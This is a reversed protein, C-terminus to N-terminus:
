DYKRKKEPMNTICVKAHRKQVQDVACSAVTEVIKTSVTLCSHPSQELESWLTEKYSRLSVAQKLAASVGLKCQDPLESIALELEMDTSRQQAPGNKYESANILRGHNKEVKVSYLIVEIILNIDMICSRIVEEFHVFYKMITSTTDTNSLVEDCQRQIYYLDRAISGIIVCVCTKLWEGSCLVNLIALQRCEAFAKKTAALLIFASEQQHKWYNVDVFCHEKLTEPTGNLLQARFLRNIIAEKAFQEQLAHNFQAQLNFVLAMICILNDPLPSTSAIVDEILKSFSSQLAAVNSNFIWRDASAMKLLHDITSQVERSNRELEKASKIRSAADNFNECPYHEQKGKVIEILIRMANNSYLVTHFSKELCELYQSLAHFLKGWLADIHSEDVLSKAVCEAYAACQMVSDLYKEIQINLPHQLQLRMGHKVIALLHRLADNADYVHYFSLPLQLGEQLRRQMQESDLQIVQHADAELRQAKSLHQQFDIEDRIYKKVAVHLHIMEQEDATM